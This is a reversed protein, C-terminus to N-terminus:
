LGYDTARRFSEPQIIKPCARPRQGKAILYWGFSQPLFTWRPIRRGGVVLEHKTITLKAPKFLDRLSHSTYLDVHVDATETNETGRKWDAGRTRRLRWAVYSYLSYVHVNFRGGPKLVRFIEAAIKKPEHSHHIVGHSYIYDFSADPFPIARGDGYVV